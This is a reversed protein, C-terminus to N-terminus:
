RALWSHKTQIHLFSKITMTEPNYSKLHHTENKGKVYFLIWVKTRLKWLSPCEQKEGGKM